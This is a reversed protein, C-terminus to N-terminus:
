KLWQEMAERLHERRLLLREFLAFRRDLHGNWDPDNPVGAFDRLLLDDDLDEIQQVVGLIARRSRGVSNPVGDIDRHVVTPNTDNAEDGFAYGHDISQVKGTTLQVLVQVDQVVGLWTQFVTARARSNADIHTPDFVGGQALKALQKVNESSGVDEIGVGLGILHSVDTGGPIEVANTLLTPAADPSAAVRAGVRAAILEVALGHHASRKLWRTAGDDCVFAHPRSYTRTDTSPPRDYAIAEVTAVGRRDLRHLMALDAM